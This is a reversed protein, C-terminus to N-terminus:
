TVIETIAFNIVLGLCMGSLNVRSESSTIQGQQQQRNKKTDDHLKYLWLIFRNENELSQCTFVDQEYPPRVPPHSRRKRRTSNSKCFLGNFFNRNM